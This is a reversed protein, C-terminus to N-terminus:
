GCRLSRKSGRRAVRLCIAPWWRVALLVAPALLFTGPDTASVDHLQSALVRMALLSAVAAIGVGGVVLLMGERMVMGLIDTVHAGLAIRVGIERTRQGVSYALVGYVGFAALVLALTGFLGFLLTFFRYRAI